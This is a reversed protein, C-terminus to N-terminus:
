RKGDRRALAGAERRGRLESNVYAAMKAPSLLDLFRRLDAGGLQGTAVLLACFVGLGAPLALAVGVLAHPAAARVLMVTALMAMGAGLHAAAGRYVPVRAVRAAIGVQCAGSAAQAVIAAVAAGAAGLGPILAAAVAVLTAVQLVSVAVLRGHREVAYVVTNYPEFLAMLVPNLALIALVTASPAFGEGLAVAVVLDSLGAVAAALPVALMLGYREVVALRRAVEALAGARADESAQPFFLNVAALPVRQLLAVVGGVAAYYGVERAGAWRELLVRDLHQGLYFLATVAVVPGAYTLLRGAHRASPWRLRLGRLLAAGLLLAVVTQLAYAAALATIGLGALAVAIKALNSVASGGIALVMLRATERRAAFTLSPVALLSSALYFLAILAYATGEGAAMRESLRADVLPPVVFLGALVLTLAGKLAAFAVVYAGTQEPDESARKRFAQHLGLDAAFALAGLLALFYGLTGVVVPGLSRAVFYMAVLGLGANVLDGALALLSKRGLADVDVRRGVPAATVTAEVRDDV